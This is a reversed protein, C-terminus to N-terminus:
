DSFIIKSGTNDFNFSFKKLGKSIMTKTIEFHKDPDAYFMIFGGNGAGLLKGGTAGAKIGSSYLDDIENDSIESFLQKKLKWNKDLLKGFSEFDNNEILNKMDYALDVMDSILVRKHPQKINESQKKLLDSASRIRGTFFLIISEEIKKKTNPTILVPSLTVSDDENFEILNIGGFAASYQDQKGIVEGCMDIEIYSALRGLEQKSIELGLYKYLAHVLSVTFSSSSGLGTGKSPVDSISTIEIGKEIKLYKLANRIISHKINIINDVNEMVSYSLRINDDFKKNISVYIYKNITTSLVAGKKKKYYEKLDSGGGVFSMRLPTRCIIM